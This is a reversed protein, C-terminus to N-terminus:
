KGDEGIGEEGEGMLRRMAKEREGERMREERVEREERERKEAFERDLDRPRMLEADLDRIPVGAVVTPIPNEISPSSSSPPLVPSKGKSNNSGSSSPLLVSPTTSSPSSPRSGWGGFGASLLSPSGSPMPPTRPTSAPTSSSSPGAEPVLSKKLGGFFSGISTVSSATTTRDRSGGTSLPAPPVTAAAATSLPRLFTAFPAPSSPTASPPTLNEGSRGPSASRPGDRNFFSSKRANGLFSGIGTALQAAGTKAVDVGALFTAGASPSPPVDGEKGKESVSSLSLPEDKESGPTTAGGAAGGGRIAGQVGAFWEGGASWGRSLRERAPKGLSNLNAPLHSLNLNAPLQSLNAPLHSLNLHAPLHDHLGHVLRIGVDEILHTKGEMPHKPEVLDFIAEDTNKDWLECAATRKFAKLFAENFSAPNYSELEPASLLMEGREGKGERRLYEGFKVCALLSCVYEEFKGRLFDDSGIFGQSAPRSPDSPVYSSDVLTVLEDMWKRDAATLTILSTLSPNLIELTASDINVVVDIKCDRQQQFISNTTGVLFTKAKLLDIQQLPLYPQFFSNQGFVDLPLGLYRILSRRDSTKLTTPKRVRQSRTDLAPSASDRLNTLLAPILAVLSYQFTCLQEVPTNAAFFMVRRQLMILKLLMLTKFRFRYVLERLSTGMYMGGDEGEEQDMEEEEETEEGDRKEEPRDEGSDIDVETGAPEFSQYLDVLISKDDFDRQAFFSRTVVGLKDRLPGFIPKNALVVIAKQVTSRTVEKGKNLLEDAPIQRNCSIGFITQPVDASISPLLLHFYSYDEDRAHAGDPLALFPLAKQLEDDERLKKPYTFEVTPGLAHDFGVLAVGWIKAGAPANGALSGGSSSTSSPTRYMYGAPPSPAALLTTSDIPTASPAPPFSHPQPPQSQSESRPHPDPSPSLSAEDPTKTQPPDATTAPHDGLSEIPVDDLQDEPPATTSKPTSSSSAPTPPALSSSPPTLTPSPPSSTDPTGTDM